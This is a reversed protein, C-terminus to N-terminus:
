KMRRSVLGVAGLAFSLLLATTGGDPVSPTGQGIFGTCGDGTCDKSGVEAAFESKGNSVDLQSLDTVGSVTFQLDQIDGTNGNIAPDIYYQFSGFGDFQQPGTHFTCSACAVEVGPASWLSTYITGINSSTLNLTSNFAFGKNILQLNDFLTLTITAVNTTTDLTKEVQGYPIVAGCNAGFNCSTLTVIEAQAAPVFSIAFLAVMLTAWLTARSMSLEESVPKAIEPGTKVLGRLESM